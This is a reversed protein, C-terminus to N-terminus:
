DPIFNHYFFVAKAIGNFCICNYLINCFSFPLVAYESFLAIRKVICEPRILDNVTKAFIYTAHILSAPPIHTFTRVIRIVALMCIRKISGVIKDHSTVAHLLGTAQKYICRASDGKIGTICIDIFETDGHLISIILKIQDFSCGIRIHYLFETLQDSSAINCGAPRKTISLAAPAVIGCIFDSLNCCFIFLSIDRDVTNIQINVIHLPVLVKGNVPIGKCIEFIQYLFHLLLVNVQNRDYVATHLFLIAIIDILFSFFLPIETLILIALVKDDTYPGALAAERIHQIILGPFPKAVLVPDQDILSNVAEPIVHILRCDKIRLFTQFLDKVLHFFIFCGIQIDIGEKFHRIQDTRDGIIRLIISGKIMIILSLTVAM